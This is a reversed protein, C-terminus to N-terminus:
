QFYLDPFSAFAENRVVGFDPCGGSAVDIPQISNIERRAKSAIGDSETRILALAAKNKNDTSVRETLLKNELKVHKADAIKYGMFTCSITWAIFAAIYIKIM